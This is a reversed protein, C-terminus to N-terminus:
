DKPGFSWMLYLFVAILLLLAALTVGLLTLVVTLRQRQAPSMPRRGPTDDYDDRQPDM